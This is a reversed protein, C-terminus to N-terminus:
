PEWCAAELDEEEGELEKNRAFEENISVRMQKALQEADVLDLNEREGPGFMYM